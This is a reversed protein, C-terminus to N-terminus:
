ESDMAQIRQTSPYTLTGAIEKLTSMKLRMFMEDKSWRRLNSQM